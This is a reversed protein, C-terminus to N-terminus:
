RIPFAFAEIPAYHEYTETMPIADAVPVDLTRAAAGTVLVYAGNGVLKAARNKLLRHVMVVDPGTLERSGAIQQLV